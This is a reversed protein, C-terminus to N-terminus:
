PQVDRRRADASNSTFTCNTLTPDAPTTTCGAAAHRGLQEHVHLQDPDPQQLVNYMGGGNSDASNSTFTCDTLTPSSSYNFMGGGSTPRGLQEHVHLQDPDPQQLRQVDRRRLDASNSTFTCDTLTPSSSYNYM